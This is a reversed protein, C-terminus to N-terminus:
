KITKLWELIAHWPSAGASALFAAAAYGALPPFTFGLMALIDLRLLASLGFGLLIAAGLKADNQWEVTKIKMLLPRFLEVGREVAVALMVIAAIVIQIMALDINM